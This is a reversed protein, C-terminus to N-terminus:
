PFASFVGSGVRSTARSPASGTVLTSPPGGDDQALHLEERGIMM